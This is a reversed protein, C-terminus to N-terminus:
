AALKTTALAAILVVSLALMPGVAPWAASGGAFAALLSLLCFGAFLVGGLIVQCRSFRDSRRDEGPRAAERHQRFRQWRGSHIAQLVLFDDGDRLIQRGAHVRVLADLWSLGPYDDRIELAIGPLLLRKRYRQFIEVGVTELNKQWNSM